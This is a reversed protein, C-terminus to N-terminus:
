DPLRVPTFERLGFYTLVVAGLGTLLLGGVVLDGLLPILRLVQCLRTVAAVGAAVAWGPRQIPLPPTTRCPRLEADHLLERGPL